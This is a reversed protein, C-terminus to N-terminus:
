VETEGDLWVFAPGVARGGVEIGRGVADGEFAVAEDGLVAGVEVGDVNWSLVVPV